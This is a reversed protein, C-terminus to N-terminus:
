VRSLEGFYKSLDENGTRATGMEKELELISSLLALLPIEVEDSGRRVRTQVEDLRQRIEGRVGVRIRKCLLLGQVM